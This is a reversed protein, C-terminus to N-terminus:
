RGAGRRRGHGGRGRGSGAGAEPDGAPAAGVADFYVDELTRGTALDTLDARREALWNAVVATAASGSVGEIRYRGPSTETVVAGPGLAGALAETDLGPPAGFSLGSAAGGTLGQPTGELVVRGGSVIVIRDAMKEAEPLEHTTILVCVGRDRLDAVVARIARRGEPDVGATPEDLFTVQPRGVLALALSLRQQEGGSLHRWPTAAVPRLSVLDLLTDTGLPDPYYSAFLDLVRRPGLMPYVGGRQLMVGIRGTLARHETVPDLDLVRMHGGSPRRYGELSEITSTKGAGNPGLVVLVEGPEASLSLRDVAVVEGGAGYRVTLDTVQVAPM